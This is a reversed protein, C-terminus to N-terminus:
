KQFPTFHHSLLDKRNFIEHARLVSHKTREPAPFHFLIGPHPNRGRLASAVGFIAGVGAHSASSLEEHSPKVSISLM